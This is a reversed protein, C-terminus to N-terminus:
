QINILIYFWKFTYRPLLGRLRFTIHPQYDRKYMISPSIPRAASQVYETMTVEM